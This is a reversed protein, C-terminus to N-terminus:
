KVSLTHFPEEANLHSGDLTLIYSYEGAEDPTYPFVYVAEGRPAVNVAKVVRAVPVGGSIITCTINERISHVRM